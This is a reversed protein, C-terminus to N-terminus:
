DSLLRDVQELGNQDGIQEYLARAAQLHTEATAGDDQLRAVLGLGVRAAAELEQQGTAKAAAEARELAAGAESTVGSELYAQGLALWVSAAGDSKTLDELLQTAEARLGHGLYLEAVLLDVATPSLPQARLRSELAKVEEANAASLLWFGLGAHEENGQDSRVGDGEVVLVYTARLELPPWDAPWELEGGNAPVPPRDQGDDSILTVTYSAVSPLPHWHLQPRDSLLATNRPRLVNPVGEDQEGRLAAVDSWPRPPRGTQCPATHELDDDPLTKPGEEWLTEDGCFVSAVSGEPIRLLDGPQVTIGFGAPLFESWGVRRLWVDGETEVLLNPLVAPGAPEAPATASATPEPAVPEPAPTPTAGCAVVLGSLLLLLGLSAWKGM